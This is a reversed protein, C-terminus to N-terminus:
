GARREELAGAAADYIALAWLVIPAALMAGPGWGDLLWAPLILGTTSLLRQGPPVVALWAAAVAWLGGLFVAARVRHGALIQGWGPVISSALAAVLPHPVRPASAGARAAHAHTVAGLHLMAAAFLLLGLGIPLCAPAIDLLEFTPLLRDATRLAAWALTAVFGFASLYFLGWTVERAVLHGSGPLFLSLSGALGADPGGGRGTRHADAERRRADPWSGHVPEAMTAAGHADASIEGLDYVNEDNRM